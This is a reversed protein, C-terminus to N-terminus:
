TPQFPAKESIILFVTFVKIELPSVFSSKFKKIPGCMFFSDNSTFFSKINFSKFLFSFKLFNIVFFLFLNKKSKLRKRFPFIISNPIELKIDGVPGQFEIYFEKLNVKVTPPITLYKNM